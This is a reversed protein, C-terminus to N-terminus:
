SVSFPPVQRCVGSSCQTGGSTQGVFGRAAIVGTKYTATGNVFHNGQEPLNTPMYEYGLGLSFSGSFTYTGLAANREEHIPIPSTIAQNLTQKRFELEFYEGRGTKFKSKLSGHVLNNKDPMWRYGGRAELEVGSSVKWKSFALPHYIKAKLERDQGYLFSSGLTAQGEYGVRGETLFRAATVDSNNTSLVIEEELTPPGQFEYFFSRYDKFELKSKFVSDSYSLSGFNAYARPKKQLPKSSNTSEWDMVNSEWYADVGSLVDRAELSAGLTQYKRNIAKGDPQSSTLHYHATGKVQSGFHGSLAGGAIKVERSSMLTDIPNIAVPAQLANVRGGFASVEVFDDRYKLSGGELTNDVGFAPNNFLALAIGRGLEQHSDGIRFEWNEFDGVLSKKDLLFPQDVLPDRTQSFRNTFLVETSINEYGVGVSTQHSFVNKAPTEPEAPDKASSVLAHDSVSWFFSSPSAEESLEASFSSLSVAVAILIIKFNSIM